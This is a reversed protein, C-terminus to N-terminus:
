RKYQNVTEVILEAISKGSPFRMGAAETKNVADIAANLGENFGKNFDNGTIRMRIGERAIQSANVKNEKTFSELLEKDEPTIYIMVPVVTKFRIPKQTTM